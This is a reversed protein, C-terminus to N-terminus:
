KGDFILWNDTKCGGVLHLKLYNAKSQNIIVQKTILLTYFWILNKRNFILILSKKYTYNREILSSIFVLHMSNFM